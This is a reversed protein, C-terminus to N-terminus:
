KRFLRSSKHMNTIFHTLLNCRFVWIRLGAGILKTYVPLMSAPADKWNNYLTDSYNQM